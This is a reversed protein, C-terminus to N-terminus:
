GFFEIKLFTQYYALAMADMDDPSRKIRKKIEDKPAAVRRGKPDLKYTIGAAQRKLELVTDRDLLALSIGELKEALTFLLESRVNPYDDDLAASGSNVPVFDYGDAQDVVGGGVGADDIKCPIKRPNIKVEDSSFHEAWKDCLTKIKGTTWATDQGHYTIHELSTHGRRVHISTLDDGFRAM